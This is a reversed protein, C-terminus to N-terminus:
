HWNEVVLEELAHNRLVHNKKNNLNGHIQTLYNEQTYQFMIYINLIYITYQSPKIFIQQNYICM